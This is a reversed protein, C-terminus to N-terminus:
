AAVPLHGVIAEFAGHAPDPPRVVEQPPAFHRAMFRRALLAKRGDGDALGLGAEELVLAGALTAAALDLLRRAVVPGDGPTDRLRTFATRCDGLREAPQDLFGLRGPRRVIRGIM